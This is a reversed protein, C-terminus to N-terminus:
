RNRMLVYAAFLRREDEDTAMFQNIAYEAQDVIDNVQRQTFQSVPNYDAEHRMAQTTAFTKAFLVIAPSYLNVEPRSCQQRAYGHQLARYTLLWERANRANPSQGVLTDACSEALTTFM